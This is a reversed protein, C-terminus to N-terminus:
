SPTKGGDSDILSSGSSVRIVWRTVPAPAPRLSTRGYDLADGCTEFTQAKQRMESSIMMDIRLMRKAVANAKAEQPSGAGITQTRDLGLADVKPLDRADSVVRDLPIPKVDDCGERLTLGASRDADHRNKRRALTHNERRGIMRAPQFDAPLAVADKDPLIVLGQVSEQDVLTAISYPLWAHRRDAEM